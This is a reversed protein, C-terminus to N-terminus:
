MGENPEDELGRSGPCRQGGSRLAHREAWAEKRGWAPVLAVNVAVACHMEKRGQREAGLAHREAGHREAGQLRVIVRAAPYVRASELLSVCLLCRERGIQVDHEALYTSASPSEGQYKVGNPLGRRISAKGCRQRSSSSPCVPLYFENRRREGVALIKIAM